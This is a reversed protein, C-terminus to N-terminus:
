IRASFQVPIACKDFFFEGIGFMVEKEEVNTM